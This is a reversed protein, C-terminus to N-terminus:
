LRRFTPEHMRPSCSAVVIKNLGLEKVKEKILEKGTDSCMFMEHTSYEVYPYKAAEEAVRAVDIVGAINHGCHCTFVGIRKM